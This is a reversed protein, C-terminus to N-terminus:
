GGLCTAEVWWRERAALARAAADASRQSPFIAFCASGSGSMRALECGPQARLAALVDAILPLRAIAPRELDNGEGALWELLTSRVIEGNSEPLTSVPAQSAEGARFGAFVDKTALPTGPFVLVAQLEPLQLPASLIEGLGRMWRPTSDVCVPVDAGSALAAAMLRPDALSLGNARALLRLAAAADASGGGLGAGAPLRKLLTFHGLTLGRVREAFARAAKLVLNQDRPGAADARQGHVDLGLAAGPRLTLQDGVRAFCVLSELAHYGDPRRGVIRLTLNIKAYAAEALEPGASM